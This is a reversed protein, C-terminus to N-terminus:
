VGLIFAAAGWCFSSYGMVILEDAHPEALRRVLAAGEKHDIAAAALGTGVLMGLWENRKPLSAIGLELMRDIESKADSHRGVEAYFLALASRWGLLDPFQAGLHKLPTEFVELGGRDIAVLFRQLQHSLIANRDQVRGGEETFRRTHVEAEAFRGELSARTARFLDGYWMAQPQRLQRALGTFVEIGRGYEELRGCQLLSTMRLLQELLVIPADQGELRTSIDASMYREPEDISYLALKEACEVYRLTSAEALRCAMALAEACLEHRRTESGPAWHLAVALRGLLRARVPSDSRPLTALADELLSVLEADYVGTEISLFDPAFRLAAVALEEPLGKFKALRGVAQFCARAAERSGSKTHADGLALLIECRRRQNPVSERDCLDLAQEFSGVAEEFALREEAWRGARLAIELAQSVDGTRAAQFFHQAVTPPDAPRGEREEMQLLARGAALHLQARREPDIRQYLADRLLVHAFRYQSPSPGSEQIIRAQVAVDLLSLIEDSATGAAIELPRAAFDRGIVAAVELVTVVPEPLAAVQHAIADQSHRPLEFRLHESGEVEHTRDESQLVHVVQHLFFPNGNTRERLDARVAASSAHGTTVRLFEGVEEECLGSLALLRTGEERVLEAVRKARTADQSLEAERHTGLLVIRTGALQRTLDRLLILSSLDARHLDDIVLLVPRASAIRRVLSTVSDFLLFRAAKADAPPPIPLNPLRERIEPLLRALEPGGPGLASALDDPAMRMVMPRLLQIWPWFVPAGEVEVCHAVFVEFGQARAADVAMEATRTKGIGPEGRLLLLSRMGLVAERLAADIARLLEARGVFTSASAREADGRGPDLPAVFRFGRRSVTRIVAQRAGDDGVARRAQHVAFSLAEDNVQVGNWLADLLEVRPVVREHHRALYLLLDLPRPQIRVVEGARRLERREPDLEFPDFRYVPSM